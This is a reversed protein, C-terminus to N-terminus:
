RRYVLWFVYLIFFLLTGAIMIGLIVKLANPYRLALFLCGVMIMLLLALFAPFSEPQTRHVARWRYGNWRWLRKYASSSSILEIEENKEDVIFIQQCRDCGFAETLVIPILHGRRRCPCPYQQSIDVKIPKRSRM